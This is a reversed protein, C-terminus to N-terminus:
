IRRGSLTSLYAADKSGTGNVTQVKVLKVAGKVGVMRLYRFTADLCRGWGDWDELGEVDRGVDESEIREPSPPLVELM